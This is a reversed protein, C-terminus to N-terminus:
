GAPVPSSGNQPAATPPQAAPTQVSGGAPAPQGPNGAPVQTKALRNLDGTQMFSEIKAALDERNMQRMRSIPELALERKNLQLYCLALGYHAEALRPMKEASSKFLALARELDKKEFMFIWAMAFEARTYSPDARLAKEFYDLAAETDHLTGAHMTGLNFYPEAYHPDLAAAEEFEAIASQTFGEQKSYALGLLNRVQPMEPKIKLIAHLKDVACEYDEEQMCAQAKKLSLSLDEKEDAQLLPIWVSFCFCIGALFLSKKM